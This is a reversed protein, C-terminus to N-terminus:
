GHREGSQPVRRGVSWRAYMAARNQYVDGSAARYAAKPSVRLENVNCRLVSVSARMASVFALSLLIEGLTKMILNEVHAVADVGGM